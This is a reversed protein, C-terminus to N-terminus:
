FANFLSQLHCKSHHLDYRSSAAQDAADQECSSSRKRLLIAVIEHIAHCQLSLYRQMDFVLQMDSMRSGIVTPVTSM